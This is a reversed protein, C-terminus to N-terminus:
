RHCGTYHRLLLERIPEAGKEFLPLNVRSRITLMLLSNVGSMDISHSFVAYKDNVVARVLRLSPM